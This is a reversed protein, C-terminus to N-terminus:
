QKTPLEWEVISAFSYGLALFFNPLHDMNPVYDPIIQPLTCVNGEEDIDLMFYEKLM